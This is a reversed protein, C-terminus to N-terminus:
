LLEFNTTNLESNNNSTNENNIKYNNLYEKKNQYGSVFCVSNNKKTNIKHRIMSDNYNNQNHKSAYSSINKNNIISSKRKDLILNTKNQYISSPKKTNNIKLRQKNVKQIIQSSPSLKKIYIQAQIIFIILFINNVKNQNQNNNNINNSPAKQNQPKIENKLITTLDNGFQRNNLFKMNNEEIKGSNIPNNNQINKKNVKLYQIPHSNFVSKTKYKMVHEMKEFNKLKNNNQIM